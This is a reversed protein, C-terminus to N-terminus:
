DREYIGRLRAWGLHQLEISGKPRMFDQCKEV